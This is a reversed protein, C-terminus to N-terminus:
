LASQGFREQGHYSRNNSFRIGRAILSCLFGYFAVQRKRAYALICWREWRYRNSETHVINSNEIFTWQNAIIFSNNDVNQYDVICVRASREEKDFYRVEIGNQLYDMFVANKQVLEGNEFNTLKFVAEKIAEFPLKPNLRFLSDELIEKYLPSQFDREIEPGYVHTYGMNRFLEIISNEYDAEAFYTPM